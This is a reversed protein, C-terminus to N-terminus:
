PVLSVGVTAELYPGALGGVKRGDARATVGLLTSGAEISTWIGWSRSLTGTLMGLAGMSGILRTGTSVNVNDVEAHGAVQGAGLYVHPGVHLRIAAPATGALLSGGASLQWMTVSGLADFAEGRLMRADLMWTWHPSWPLVVGLAGGLLGGQWASYSRASVGAWVSVDSWSPEVPPSTVTAPVSPSPPTWPRPPLARALRTRVAVTLRDTADPRQLVLELWSARVLEAAELALWRARAGVEIPALNVARGVTKGTARDELVLELAPAECSPQEIHLVALAGAVTAVREVGDARLEIALLDDLAAANYPLGPCPPRTVAITVPPTAGPAPASSAPPASGTAPASSAPPRASPAPTPTPTQAQASSALSLTTALLLALSTSTSRASM